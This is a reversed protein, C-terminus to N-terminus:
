IGNEGRYASWLAARFLPRAVARRNRRALGAMSGCWARWAARMEALKSQRAPCDSHSIGACEALPCTLCIREFRNM